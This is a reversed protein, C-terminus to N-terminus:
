GDTSLQLKRDCNVNGNESAAEPFGAGNDADAKSDGPSGAPLSAAALTGLSLLLAWMIPHRMVWQFAIRDKRKREQEDM